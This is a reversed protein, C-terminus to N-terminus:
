IIGYQTLLIVAVGIINLIILFTLRNVSAKVKGVEDIKSSLSDIKKDTEEILTQMNRYCLIDEMHIKDDIESKMKSMSDDLEEKMKSMSDSLEEKMKDMSENLSSVADEIKTDDAARKDLKTEVESLKEQIKEILNDIKAEITETIGSAIRQKEVLEDELEKAKADKEDVINQLEKAKKERAFMLEQLQKAKERFEDIQALLFSNEAIAKKDVNTEAIEEATVEMNVEENVINNLNDMKSYERENRHIKVAKYKKKNPKIGLSRKIKEIPSM